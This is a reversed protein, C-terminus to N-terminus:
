LGLEGLVAEERRYDEITKKNDFREFHHRIGYEDFDHEEEPYQTIFHPFGIQSFYKGHIM